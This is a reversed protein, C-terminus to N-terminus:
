KWPFCSRLHDKSPWGGSDPLAPGVCVSGEEDRAKGPARSPLTLAGEGDDDLHRSALM